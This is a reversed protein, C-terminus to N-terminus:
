CLGNQDRTEILIRALARMLEDTAARLQELHADTPDVSARDLASFFPDKLHLIRDRTDRGIGRRSGSRPAVRWSM